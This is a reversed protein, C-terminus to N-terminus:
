EPKASAVLRSRRTKSNVLPAASAARNNNPTSGAHWILATWRVSASLLPDNNAVPACLRTRLTRIQPWTAKVRTFLLVRLDLSTALAFGSYSQSLVALLVPDGVHALLLACGLGAAILIASEAVLERVIRWRGAGLALRVAIERRRRLGRALLLNAVNLCSALLVLASIALLALLPRQFRNRMSYDLGTAGSTVVLPQNLIETRAAGQIREPLFEDLLRRWEVSLQARVQEPTVGPRVRAFAFGWYFVRPALPDARTPDVLQSIPFSVSPPFGVLLGQFRPQTVGIIRFPVGEISISQGIVNPDGGFHGRWFTYSLVVVRPGNPIDDERTFLRGIAPRVGLTEYCDGTLALGGAPLASGKVEVTTLPTNAGCVGEFLPGKRLWDFMPSPVAGVFGRSDVQGIRVLRQPESVPLPRLMLANLLSFIATNAGIGLGLSLIAVLTFGPSKRLKRLAYRLDRWFAEM